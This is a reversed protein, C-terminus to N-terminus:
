EEPWLFNKLAALEDASMYEEGILLGWKLTTMKGNNQIIIVIKEGDETYYEFNGLVKLEDVKLPGEGSLDNLYDFVEINTYIKDPYSNIRKGNYKTEYFQIRYGDTIEENKSCGALVSVIMISILLLSFIKKM